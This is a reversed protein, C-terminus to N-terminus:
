RAVVLLLPVGIPAAPRPMTPPKAPVNSREITDRISGTRRVWRRGMGDLREASADWDVRAWASVSECDGPGSPKASCNAKLTADPTKPRSRLELARRAPRTM